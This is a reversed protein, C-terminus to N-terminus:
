SSVKETPDVTRLVQCCWWTLTGEEELIEDQTECLLKNGTERVIEKVTHVAYSDAGSFELVLTGGNERVGYTVAVLEDQGEGTKLNFPYEHWPCVAGITVAYFLLPTLWVSIVRM